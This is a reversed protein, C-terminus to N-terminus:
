KLATIWDRVKTVATTDITNTGTPPMQWDDRRNMRYFLQSADPDGAVVIKTPVGSVIHHADKGITTTYAGTLEPTEDTVHLTLRLDNVKAWAGASNHCFGCNAHLYALVEQTLGTGPPDKPAVPKSLLGRSSWEDLLPSLQITGIGLVGEPQGVHCRDCNERDPLDHTTGGYATAGAPMATASSETADWGFTVRLWGDARKELYRTELRRTGVRFEKWIKAGVPLQWHDPDTTDITTGAPLSIFRSKELSDSWLPYRVDYAVVAPSLTKSAFDSYLGTEALTSPGDYEGADISVDVEHVHEPGVDALAGTDVSADM